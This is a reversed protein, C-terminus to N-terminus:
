RKILEGFSLSGLEYGEEISLIEGEINKEALWENAVQYSSFFHVQHCFIMWIEEVSEFGSKTPNPRVISMVAETPEYQEVKDPNITLRIENKTVPCTSVVKATQNLM